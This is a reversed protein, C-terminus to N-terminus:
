KSYAFVAVDVRKAGAKKLIKAAESASAGTTIVDDILLVSKGRVDAKARLRYAGKIQDIRNKKNSGVQRTNTTRVLLTSHDLALQKALMRAIHGAHDFGRQRVRLPATPLSTVVTDNPLFPLIDALARAIPLSAQRKSKFKLQKILEKQVDKYEYAVYVRQLGTQAYCSKCVQSTDSQAHCRFCRSPLPEDNLRCWECWLSGEQGCELCDDPALIHFLSYIM